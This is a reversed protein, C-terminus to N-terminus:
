AEVVHRGQLRAEGGDQLQQRANGQVEWATLFMRNVPQSQCDFTQGASAHRAAMRCSSPQGTGDTAASSSCVRFSCKATRQGGSLSASAATSCSSGTRQNTNVTHHYEVRCQDHLAGTSVSKHV